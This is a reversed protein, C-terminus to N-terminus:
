KTLIGNEKLRITGNDLMWRLTNMVKKEPFKLKAILEDTQMHANSIETDICISITEFEKDTLNEELHLRCVDCNGCPRGGKEGFYHLLAISRCVQKTASYNLMYDIRKKYREKLLDYADKGIYVFEEAERDREFILQPLNKGPIFKILKFKDLAVLNEYVQQRSLGTKKALFHESIYVFSSFLGTYSRLMLKILEEHKQNQEQFRFLEDKDAFIHLRSTNEDQDALYLYGANQLIKIAFFAQTRSLKFTRCFDILDFDFHRNAGDGIAVQLYNCLSNYVKIIYPKPPFSDSFRKNLKTDDTKNYLLIAYAKERDRGARGAEQFYSEISDPLDIHVVIRVDPKDIGMGFANTAVMVRVQDKMWSNQKEEKDEVKLGAHYHTASIGNQVLFESIEQTKKRSRVYVIGCGTMKTYIKLLAKFKDESRRVYYVVNKREFSMQIANLKKFQLKRQIDEVVQPTATATLALVPVDPLYTRLADIKLYSPRFDYGWQSICHAEDIVIWRINLQPLKSIFLPTAIREPSLYLFKVGGLVCNDLLIVMHDRRMGSHIAEAQIGKKRLGNVQDKMLAILPTIVLCVGDQAMAPVQFTLSKGGGTPMLGLTDKGDAVSLIIEEQAPRFSDYGWYQLLIDKYKKLRADM